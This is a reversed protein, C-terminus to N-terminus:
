YYEIHYSCTLVSTERRFHLICRRDKLWKNSEKSRRLWLKIRLVSSAELWNSKSSHRIHDWMMTIRSRSRSNILHNETKRTCSIWELSLGLLLKCLLSSSPLLSIFPIWSPSESLLLMIKLLHKERYFECTPSLAMEGKSINVMLYVFRRSIMWSFSPTKKSFDKSLISLALHLWSHDRMFSSPHNWTRSPWSM